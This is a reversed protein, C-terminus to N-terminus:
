AASRCRRSTASRSTTSTSSGQTSRRRSSSGATPTRRSSGRRSGTRRPTPARSRRRPSLRRGRDGRGPRVDGRERVGLRRARRCSADGPLVTGRRERGRPGERRREGGRRGPEAGDRARRPQHAPRHDHRAGVPRRGQPREDEGRPPRRVRGRDAARRHDETGVHLDPGPPPVCRVDDRQGRVRPRRRCPRHAPQLRRARARRAQAPARRGRRAQPGHGDLGHLEAPARPPERDARRRNGAGRRPRADRREPRRGPAGGRRLGRGVPPRRGAAVVRVAQAGRHQRPRPARRDLARVPHAGRELARDRRRRRGPAQHGDRVRGHGLPDGRRAARVRAGGGAPLSGPRFADPVHRLRVHMRDGAGADVRGRGPAVRARRGGEPLHGAARGAAHPVVRPLGRRCGRGGAERGGRERERRRLRRRRELPRPERVDPRGRGRRVRGRHLAETDIGTETQTSM